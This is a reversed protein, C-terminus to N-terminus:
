FRRTARPQPSKVSRIAVDALLAEAYIRELAGVWGLEDLSEGVHGLSPHILTAM